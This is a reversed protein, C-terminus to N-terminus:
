DIVGAVEIAKLFEPDDRVDAFAPSTLFDVRLNRCAGKGSMIADRAANRLADLTAARAKRGSWLALALLFHNPGFDWLEAARRAATIARDWDKAVLFYRAAVNYGAAPRQDAKKGSSAGPATEWQALEAEIQRAAIEARDERGALRCARFIAGLAHIRWIMDKGGPRPSAQETLAQEAVRIAEQALGADCAADAVHCLQEVLLGSPLSERTPGDIIALVGKVWEAGSGSDLYARVTHSEGFYSELLQQATLNPLQGLADKHMQVSKRNAADANATMGEAVLEHARCQLAVSSWCLAHFRVLPDPHQREISRCFTANEQHFAMAHLIERVLRVTELRPPSEVGLAARAHELALRLKGRNLVGPEQHTALWQYLQALYFRPALHEPHAEILSKLRCEAADSSQVSLNKVADDCAAEVPDIRKDRAPKEESM